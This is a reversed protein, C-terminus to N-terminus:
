HYLYDENFHWYHFNRNFWKIVTSNGIRTDLFLWLFSFAWLYFMVYLIGDIAGHVIIKLM